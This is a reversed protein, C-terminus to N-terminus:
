GAQFNHSSIDPAETAPEGPRALTWRRGDVAFVPRYEGDSSYPTVRVSVYESRGPIPLGIERAIQRHAMLSGSLIIIGEPRLRPRADRVRKMSDAQRCVTRIATADIPRAQVRRFLETVRTMASRPALIAAANAEDLSALLNAPIPENRYLWRLAELGAPSLRSKLDPNKTTAMLEQSTRGVAVSMVARVDDVGILLHLADIGDRPILWGTGTATFRIDFEIGALRVDRHSGEVLEFDTILATEVASGLAAKEHKSLQEWKYRGTNAGDYQRDLTRRLITAMRTGTPDLERLARELADLEADHPQTTPAPPISIDAQTVVAAPQPTRGPHPDPDSEIIDAFDLEPREHVNLTYTWRLTMPHDPQYAVRSYHENWDFDLVTTEVVDTQGKQVYCEFSLYAEVEVHGVETGGDYREDMSWEVTELMPEVTDISGGGEAWALLEGFRSASPEIETYVLGRCAEEVAERFQASLSREDSGHDGESSAVLARLVNLLQMADTALDGEQRGPFYGNERTWWSIYRGLQRIMANIPFPNDPQQERTRRVLEHLHEEAEDLARAGSTLPALLLLEIMSTSAWADNQDAAAQQAAYWRDVRGIRGTLVAELSLAQVGHWSHSPNVALGHLYRQHALSLAERSAIMRRDRDTGDLQACRFGLEALSEQANGLLGLNDLRSVQGPAAADAEVYRSMAAIRLGLIDAVTDYAAADPLAADILRDAWLQATSLSAMQARMAVEYLRDQYHEPLRIYSALSERQAQHVQEGHLLERTSSLTTRVDAGKLILGYFHRTFSVSEDFTDRTKSVVVVSTGAEHLTRALEDSDAAGISQTGSCVALTVVAPGPVVSTIAARLMESTVRATTRDDDAYLALGLAPTTQDGVRCGHALVHVHTYPRGAAAAVQATQAIRSVSAREVTTLMGRDDFEPEVIGEVPVPENWPRLAERLAARHGEIPVPLGADEPSAAAFLIRPTSWWVAPAAFNVNEPDPPAQNRGDEATPLPVSPPPQLDIGLRQAVARGMAAFPEMEADLARAGSPDALLAQVAPGTGAHRELHETLVEFTDWEQTTTTGRRLLDRVGDRLRLRPDDSDPGVRELLGSVLVEALHSPGSGPVLRTQLVRILRISLSPAGALIRAITQAEISSRAQFARVREPPTLTRSSPEDAPRDRPAAWVADIWEAGAAVARAWKTLSADTLAVIPVPVPSLDDPIDEWWAHRVEAEINPAAPRVTRMAAGPVGLATYGWYGEPLLQVIATPMGIAWSRVVNWTPLGYWHDASGDTVLLIVRRGGAQYLGDPHHRHGAADTVTLTPEEDTTSSLSWHTISRFAGMRWLSSEFERIADAWVAAVGNSEVVIALDLGREWKPSTVVVLRGAEATADITAEVDVVPPGPRRVRRFATFARGARSFTSNGAATRLGLTQAPTSNPRAVDGAGGHSHLLRPTTSDEGSARSSEQPLRAAPEM